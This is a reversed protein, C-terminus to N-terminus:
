KKLIYKAYVSKWPDPVNIAGLNAKVLEECDDDIGKYRGNAFETMEKPSGQAAVRFAEQVYGLAHTRLIQFRNLAKYLKDGSSLSKDALGFINRKGASFFTRMEADTVDRYSVGKSRSVVLRRVESKAQRIAETKARGWIWADAARYAFTEKASQLNDGALLLAWNAAELQDGFTKIEDRLSEWDEEVTSREQQLQASKDENYKVDDFVASQASSAARFADADAELQAVADEATGTLPTPNIEIRLGGLTPNLVAPLVPEPEKVIQQRVPVSGILPQPISEYPVPSVKKVMSPPLLVAFWSLVTSKDRKVDEEYRYARAELQTAARQTLELKQKATELTSALHDRELRMTESDARLNAILGPYTEIIDKMAALQERLQGERYRNADAENVLFKHMQNATSFFDSETGHPLALWSQKDLLNYRDALSRVLADYRPIANALAVQRPDPAPTQVGGGNCPMGQDVWTNYALSPSLGCDIKQQTWWEPEASIASSVSLAVLLCCVLIGIGASRLDTSLPRSIRRTSPNM